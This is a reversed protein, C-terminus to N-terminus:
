SERHHRRRRASRRRKGPRAAKRRIYQLWLKVVYGFALVGLAGFVWPKVEAIFEDLMVSAAVQDRKVQQESRAPAGADPRDTSYGPSSSPDAADRKKSLGLDSEFSRIAEMFGSQSIGEHIPRMADKVAQAVGRDSEDPRNNLATAKTPPALPESRTLHEQMVKAANSADKTADSEADQAPSKETIASLGVSNSKSVAGSDAGADTTVEANVAGVACAMTLVVATVHALLKM